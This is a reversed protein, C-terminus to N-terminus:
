GEQEVTRVASIYDVGPNQKMYDRAKRDLELRDADVHAGAPASFQPGGQSGLDEGADSEGRSPGTAPLAAMFERFYALPSQQVAQAQDGEGQSFEFRADEGDPLAAMFEALGEAQAPTLRRGDVAEAVLAQFEAQRRSRREAALENALTQERQSFESVAAERGAARAADIDAQTFESVAAGGDNTPPHSFSPQDDARLEAAHTSLSELEYDPLVKDATEVGFKEIIFDRLRRMARALVGPTYSDVQYDFVNDQPAAFQVPALGEVAPPEAGLWAIHGLKWGQGTKQLRVSREYLRGDRVLKEFQPEIDRSKAYLVDGERKLAATRGYAFPSYLEKHTVVHPAPHDADHNTVMQDLDARTYTATRGLSDTQTGARFIPVWDTLGKFDHTRQDMHRMM